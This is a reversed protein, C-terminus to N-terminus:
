YYACKSFRRTKPKRKELEPFRRRGNQQTALNTKSPLVDKLAQVSIALALVLDDHYSPAAGSKEVKGFEMYIYTSLEEIIHKDLIGIEKGDVLAQLESIAIGKTKSDTRWGITSTWKKSYTDYKKLYYLPTKTQKLYELIVHGHNNKEVAVLARNYM